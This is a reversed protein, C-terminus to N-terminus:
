WGDGLFQDGVRPWRGCAWKRGDKTKGRGGDGPIQLFGWDGGVSGGSQTRSFNCWKDWSMSTTEAPAERASLIAGRDEARERGGGRRGGM